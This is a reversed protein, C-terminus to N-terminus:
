RAKIKLLFPQISEFIKEAFKEAALDNYHCNDLYLTENSELFINAHDIFHFPKEIKRFAEYFAFENQRYKNFGEPGLQEQMRAIRRIEEDTWTNKGFLTPQLFMAFTAGNMKSIQDAAAFHTATVKARQKTNIFVERRLNPKPPEVPLKANKSPGILRYLLDYTYSWTRLKSQLGIVVFESREARHVLAVANNWVNKKLFSGEVTPDRLHAAADNRGTIALVLDARNEAFFRNVLLMEQFSQAGRLALNVVEARINLRENILRELISPVTFSNDSSGVGFITSGGTTVVTVDPNEFSFAPTISFGNDDTVLTMKRSIGKSIDITINPAHVYGLYPHYPNEVHRVKNLKGRYPKKGIVLKIYSYSLLELMVLPIIVLLCWFFTRKIKSTKLNSPYSKAEKVIDNKMSFEETFALLV